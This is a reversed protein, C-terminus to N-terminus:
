EKSRLQSVLNNYRNILKQKDKEKTIRSFIKIAEITITENRVFEKDDRHLPYQEESM